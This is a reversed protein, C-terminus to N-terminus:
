LTRMNDTANSFTHFVLGCFWIGLHRRNILLKHFENRTKVTIKSGQYDDFRIM